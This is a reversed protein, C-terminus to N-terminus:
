EKEDSSLDTVTVVEPLGKRIALRFDGLTHGKAAM